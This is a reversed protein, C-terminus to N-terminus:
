KEKTKKIIHDKVLKGGDIEIIRHAYKEVIHMNHSTVILTKGEANIKQLLDMIGDATKPDLNGTPEDALIVAPNVILARAMSVRQLEGGSLQSPFLDARPSLGVLELVQDVRSKWESTKVNKVALPVQINERVTREELLRYDQFVMGIKQRLYPIKNRKIKHIPDGDIVIEGSTPRSQAIILKLITTKGAGSPGVVFVWEGKNILFSVDKLAQISGYAKSVNKFEVM